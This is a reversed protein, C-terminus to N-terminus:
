KALSTNHLEQTARAKKATQRVSWWLAVRMSLVILIFLAGLLSLPPLWTDGTEAWRLWWRYKLLVVHAFVLIYASYGGWRLLLRWWRGGVKKAAWQNSIAAMATFLITAVLGLLFTDLRETLWESMPFREPLAFMSIFLHTLAMGFGLLGLYKRYVIMSDFRDWFYCVGSLIFSVGILGLSVGAAVRNAVVMDFDSGGLYMYLMMLAFLVAAFTVSNLWLEWEPKIVPIPASIM